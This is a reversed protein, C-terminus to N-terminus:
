ADGGDDDKRNKIVEILCGLVLSFLEKDDMKSVVDHPIAFIWNHPYHVYYGGTRQSVCALIEYVLRLLKPYIDLEGRIKMRMIKWTSIYTISGKNDKDFYRIIFMTTEVAKVNIDERSMVKM